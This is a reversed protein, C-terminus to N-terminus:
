SRWPLFRHVARATDGQGQSEHQGRRDRHRRRRGRGLGPRLALHAPREVHCERGLPEIGGLDDAHERREPHHVRQVVRQHLRHGAVMERGAQGLGPRDAGILLGVLELQALPEPEVVAIREGGLIHLEAEVPGLAGLDELLLDALDADDVAVTDAEV